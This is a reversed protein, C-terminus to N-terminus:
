RPPLDVKMDKLATELVSISNVPDTPCNAIAAGAGAAPPKGDSRAKRYSESLDQCYKVQVPSQGFAILPFAVCAVVGSAVLKKM